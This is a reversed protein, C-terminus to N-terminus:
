RAEGAILEDPGFLSVEGREAAARVARDAKGRGTYLGLHIRDVRPLEAAVLRSRERLRELDQMRVEGWKCEAAFLEHSASIAVVDVQNASRADWWSGIRLPRIPGHAAAHQRCIREFVEGMLEDLRGAVVDRYLERPPVLGVSGARVLPAVVAHWFRVYPDAIRYETRKSTSREAETVPVVREVIRMQELWRLPRSLAGGTKGVRKTIGSWTREGNAIADIISYHVGADGVFADLMHQAEDVLRGGPDLALEAVNDALSRKPDVLALHGPLSGITGYLLMQDRPRWRPVFRAADRFSFPAFLLRRTRRGHLPQDREELQQMATVYSGSLVLRVRTGQWAHDWQRQILSTLAPAASALYPFEDIVLLLRGDGMRDTLYEFLAEWSPLAAGSRLARDDFHEGVVRSLSALQEPETRRSAQFYIGKVARAFRSLVFSKGARRRGLALVLEPRPSEWAARLAEWETDRDVIEAPRRPM